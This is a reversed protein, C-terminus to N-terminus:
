ERHCQSVEDSTVGSSRMSGRRVKVGERTLTQVHAPTLPARREWVNYEERYIALTKQQKAVTSSAHFGRMFPQSSTAQLSRAERLTWRVTRLITTAAM